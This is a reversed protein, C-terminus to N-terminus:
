LKINSVPLNTNLTLGNISNEGCVTISFFVLNEFFNYIYTLIKTLLIKIRCQKYSTPHM